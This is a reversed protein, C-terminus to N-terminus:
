IKTSVTTAMPTSLMLTSTTCPRQALPNKGAASALVVPGSGGPAPPRPVPAARGAAPLNPNRRNQVARRCSDNCHFISFTSMGTGSATPFRGGFLAFLEVLADHVEHAFQGHTVQRRAAPFPPGPRSVAAGRGATSAPPRAALDRRAPKVRILSSPWAEQTDDHRGYVGERMGRQSGPMVRLVAHVLMSPLFAARAKKWSNLLMAPRAPCRNSPSSWSIVMNTMAWGMSRSCPSPLRSM